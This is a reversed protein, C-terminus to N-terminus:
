PRPVLSIQVHVCVHACVHVCVVCVYCMCLFICSDCVVCRCVCTHACECMCVCVCVCVCVCTCVCVSRGYTDEVQHQPCQVCHFIVHGDGQLLLDGHQLLEVCVEMVRVPPVEVAPLVSSHQFLEWSHTILPSQTITSHPHLHHPLPPTISSRCLYTTLDGACM